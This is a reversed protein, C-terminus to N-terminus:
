PRGMRRWESSTNRMRSAIERSFGSHVRARALECVLAARAPDAVVLDGVHGGRRILVVRVGHRGVGQIVADVDADADASGAREFQRVRRALRVVERDLPPEPPVGPAAARRRRGLECVGVSLSAALLGLGFGALMPAVYAGVVALSGSVIAAQAWWSPAHLEPHRAAQESLRAPVRLDDLCSERRVLLVLALAVLAAGSLALLVPAAAVVGAADRLVFATAVAAALYAVGVATLLKESVPV